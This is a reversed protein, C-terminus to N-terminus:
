NTLSEEPNATLCSKDALAACLEEIGIFFVTLVNYKRLLTECLEFLEVNGLERIMAKSNNSFPKTSTIRSCTPKFHKEILIVKSRKSFNKFESM